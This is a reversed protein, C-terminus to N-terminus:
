RRRASKLAKRFERDFNIEYRRFAVKVVTEHFDLTPKIRRSDEFAYLFKLGRNDKLPKLKGLKGLRRRRKKLSQSMPKRNRRRKSVAVRRHDPLTMVFGLKTNALVQKPRKARRIIRKKSAVPRTGKLPVALSRGSRPKLTGGREQLGMFEAGQGVFISAEPNPDKARALTSGVGGPGEAKIKLVKTLFKNRITFRTGLGGAVEKKADEATKTVAVASAFHLQKQVDDVEQLLQDLNDKTSIGITM